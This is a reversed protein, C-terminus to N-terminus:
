LFSRVSTAKFSAWVASGPALGLRETSERTITSQLEIGQLLIHVTDYMPMRELHSVVAAFTNRQSSEPKEPSLTIVEPPIAIYGKGQGPEIVAIALEGAFAAGDRFEVPIINKMGTFSAVFLSEPNSFVHDTDGAQMLRGQSLVVTSSSLALADALDHTAMLVTMGMDRHLSKILRRLEPKFGQDVSNLPEDLLLLEPDTIVARAMAVKQMEGGSLTRANRGEMGSLGTAALIQSIREESPRIGRVGLGFRINREVTGSLMYPRQMVMSMRRRIVTRGHGRSGTSDRGDLIVRGSTPRDLLDAIRLLTTKGCGTPGILSCFQGQEVCVSVDHLIRKRGISKSIGQLEIRM